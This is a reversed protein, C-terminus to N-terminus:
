PHLIRAIYEVGDALRPGYRYLIDADILAVRSERIAPITQWLPNVALAAAAGGVDDGLLIWDPKRLLVQERSVLPWRERVDAFINRGGGLSIAESVFTEAGVSMLPDESLMWFVGPKERGQIREEVGAIKSKMGAIVEGAGATCGTMEGLLAIVDYVQSFNKPEVAFSTIRLEDLLATIREHMDASLLVMDPNLLRIQEVSVTAGSFGGVSTREGAEAPYDCYETVGVVKEGAGIAFLIETVAPVLSVIRQPEANPVGSREMRPTCSFLLIILSLVIASARLRPPRPIKTRFRLRLGEYDRNNGSNKFVVSHNELLSEANEAGKRSIKNLLENM